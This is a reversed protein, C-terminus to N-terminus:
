GFDAFGPENDEEVRQWAREYLSVAPITPVIVYFAPTNDIVLDDFLPLKWQELPRHPEKLATWDGPLFLSREARPRSAQIVLDTSTLEASAAALRRSNWGTWRVVNRDTPDPMALLMLYLATGDASLEYEAAV